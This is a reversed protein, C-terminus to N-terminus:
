PPATDLAPRSERNRTPQIRPPPGALGTRLLLWHVASPESWRARARSLFRALRTGHQQQANATDAATDAATTRPTPTLRPPRLLTRAEDLGRFVPYHLGALATRVWARAQRAEMSRPEALRLAREIRELELAAYFVRDYLNSLTGAARLASTDDTRLFEAPLEADGGDGFEDEDDVTLPLTRITAALWDDARPPLQEM